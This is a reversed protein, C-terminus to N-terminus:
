IEISLTVLHLYLLFLTYMDVWLLKLVVCAVGGGVCCYLVLEFFVFMVSLYYM